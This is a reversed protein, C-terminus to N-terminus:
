AMGPRPHFAKQDGPTTSQVGLEPAAARADHPAGRVPQRAAADGDPLRHEVRRQGRVPGPEPTLACQLLRARGRLAPM